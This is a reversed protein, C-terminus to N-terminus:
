IKVSCQASSGMSYLLKGSAIQKVYPLTYIDVNSELAGKILSSIGNVHFVAKDLETFGHVMGHLAVWSPHTM